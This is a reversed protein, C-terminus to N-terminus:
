NDMITKYTYEQNKFLGAVPDPKPKSDKFNWTLSSAIEFGTTPYFYFSDKGEENHEFSLMVNEYYYIFEQYPFSIALDDGDNNQLWVQKNGVYNGKEIFDKLSLYNSQFDELSVVIDDRQSYSYLTTNENKNKLVVVDGSIKNIYLPLDINDLIKREEKINQFKVENLLPLYEYITDDDLTDIYFDLEERFSRADDDNIGHHYKYDLLKKLGKKLEIVYKKNKSKSLKSENTLAMMVDLNRRVNKTMERAKKLEQEIEEIKLDEESM